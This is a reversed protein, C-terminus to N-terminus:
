IARKTWNEQAITMNKMKSPASPVLNHEIKLNEQFKM